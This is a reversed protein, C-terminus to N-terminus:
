MEITQFTDVYNPVTRRAGGYYINTLTVDSISYGRM